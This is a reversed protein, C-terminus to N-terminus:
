PPPDQENNILGPITRATNALDRQDTTVNNKAHAKTSPRGGAVAKRRCQDNQM